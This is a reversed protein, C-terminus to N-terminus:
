RMMFTHHRGFSVSPHRKAEGEYLEPVVDAVPTCEDICLPTLNNNQVLVTTIGNVFYAVGPVVRFNRSMLNHDRNTIMGNRTAQSLPDSPMHQVAMRASSMPPITMPEGFLFLISRTLGQNPLPAYANDVAVELKRDPMRVVSRNQRMDIVVGEQHMFDPGLIVSAQLSDVPIFDFGFKHGQISFPVTVPNGTTLYTGNAARLSMSATGAKSPKATNQALLYNCLSQEILSCAAGTDFLCMVRSDGVEASVRVLLSHPGHNPRALMVPGDQKSAAPGSASNNRNSGGRQLQLEHCDRMM